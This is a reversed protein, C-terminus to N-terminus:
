VSFELLRRQNIWSQPLNGSRKLREATLEVPQRSDVIAEVIDPALFAFCIMRSVDGEDIAERNAIDRITTTQGATIEEFWMNGRAVVAILMPDKGGVPRKNDKIVLKAEVGRRRVRFPVTPTASEITKTTKVETLLVVLRNGDIEINLQGPTITVREVIAQLLECKASRNTLSLSNCLAGANELASGLQNSSTSPQTVLDLVQRENSLLQIVRNIVLNEIELAPVRWGDNKDRAAQMLRHSIHYRYRRGDKTAHTPSLRDGTEDFLLGVLLSPHKSNSSSHRSVANTSLVQQVACWTERDIIATHQGPYTKGEHAINGDYLPNSLLQYLHGRTFSKGGTEM